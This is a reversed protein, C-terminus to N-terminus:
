DIGNYNSSRSMSSHRRAFASTAASKQRTGLSASQLEDVVMAGHTATRL